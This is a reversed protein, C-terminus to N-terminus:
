KWVNTMDGCHQVFPCKKCTDSLTQRRVAGGSAKEIRVAFEATIAVKGQTKYGHAALRLADVSSGARMAFAKREDQSLSNLYTLLPNKM